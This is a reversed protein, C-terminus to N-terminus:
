GRGPRGGGPDSAAEPLDILSWVLEVREQEERVVAEVEGAWPLLAWAVVKGGRDLLELCLGRGERRRRKAVARPSRLRSLAALGLFDPVPLRAMEALLEKWRGLEVGLEGALRRVVAASASAYGRGEELARAEAALYRELCGALERREGQPLEWRCRKLFVQMRGWNVLARELGRFGGRGLNAPDLDRRLIRLYGRVAAAQLYQRDMPDLEPLHHLSEALAVEPMEGAYEVLGAEEELTPPCPRALPAEPFRVM